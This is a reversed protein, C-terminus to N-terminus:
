ILKFRNQFYSTILLSYKKSNSVRIRNELIANASETKIKKLLETYYLYATYVGFRCNDPLERIGNLAEKFEEKLEEEIQIKAEDTFNEIQVGPFYMRGKEFYDAKLDRLFNIKQFASGLKRAPEILKSFKEPEERCFVKLCMLGVVEASGYIYNNYEEQNYSQKSLDMIMSDFFATIYSHDIEHINVVWQFSHLIPNTSFGKHIAEFTEKSFDEIQKRQDQEYFTDVIEDAVRVFGYIAYISDHLSKDLMRIGLSFSTSYTNTFSRSSKISAELFLQKM